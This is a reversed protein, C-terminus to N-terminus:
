HEPLVSTALLIQFTESIHQDDIEEKNWRQLWKSLKLRQYSVEVQSILTWPVARRLYFIGPGLIEGFNVLFLTYFLFNFFHM